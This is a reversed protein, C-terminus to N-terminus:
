AVQRRRRWVLGTAVAGLGLAAWTSPEPVATVSLDINAGDNTFLIVYSSTNNNVTFATPVVTGAVGTIINDYTGPQLGALTFTQNLQFGNFGAPLALTSHTNGTGLTLGIVSGANLVPNSTLTLTGTAAGAGGQLIAGSNVTVAGGLTGTGGLVSGANNLTVAGTVAVSNGNYLLTGANVTTAGTYTNTASLQLVGAGTKTLAGAGSVVGAVETDVPIAATRGINFTFVQTGAAATGTNVTGSFTLKNSGAQQVIGGVTNTSAVSLNNPATYADSRNFSLTSAATQGTALTYTVGGTSLTGATGGNGVQLTGGPTAGTTGGSLTTGNTYTNNQTLIVTGSNFKLLGSAGIIVADITATVGATAQNSGIGAGGLQLTFGNGTVTVSQTLNNSISLGNAIINSGLTLTFPSTTAVYGTAGIAATDASSNTWGSYTGGATGPTGTLWLAATTSWIGNGYNLATGGGTGDADYYLTAAHLSCCTAAFLSATLALRRALSFSTPKM